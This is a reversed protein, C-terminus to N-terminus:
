VGELRGDHSHGCRWRTTTIPQNSSITTDERIAIGPEKTRSTTKIKSRRNDPYTPTGRALPIPQSSGITADEGIAIGPEKTRSTVDLKDRWDHGDLRRSGALPIPQRGGITADEGIAIGPEKTRSTVDLKDRWDHGDLRRSGALPIPQRGGITADECIAVGQEPARTATACRDDIEGHRGAAIAIPKDGAIPPYVREAYGINAINGVGVRSRDHGNGRRRGTSAVPQRRGLAPIVDPYPFRAPQRGSAEVGDVSEGGVGRVVHHIVAPRDAQQADAPAVEDHLCRWRPPAIRHRRKRNICVLSRCHETWRYGGRQLEAVDDHVFSRSRQASGNDAIDDREDTPVSHSVTPPEAGDRASALHTRCLEDKAEFSAAENPNWRGEEASRHPM